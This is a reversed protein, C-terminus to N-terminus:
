PTRLLPSISDPGGAEPQSFLPVKGSQFTDVPKKRDRTDGTLKVYEIARAKLDQEILELMSTFQSFLLVRRGEALLEELMELLRALKASDKVKRAADLKLLRPDCCIQRLKLLADLVVIQSQALGRAAIEARVREDMAARVTEYLDSQADGLEIVESIETKAPLEAAVQEKTRRLVFPRIRRALSLRRPEDAGKEIPTRYLRRFADAEGLFGPMLFHFLSWLEGLHNELPTGTLCLRHRSKLQQVVKAAQTKANKIQQAEDLIVLHFEQALLADKDRALLPYTTLVLDSRAFQGFAEKRKLGHSVHVRLEPAFRATEARWNPVVSTPAVVLAPRDLRGAERETLIHALAEM